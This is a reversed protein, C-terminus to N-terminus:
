GKKSGSVVINREILGNLLNTCKSEAEEQSIQYGTKLVAAIEPLDMRGNCIARMDKGFDPVTYIRNNNTDFLVNTFERKMAEKQVLGSMIMQHMKALNFNFSGMFVGENLVPRMEDSGKDSIKRKTM